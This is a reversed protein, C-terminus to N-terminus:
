ELRRACYFQATCWKGRTLLEGEHEYLVEMGSSEGLLQRMQGSSLRRSRSHSKM